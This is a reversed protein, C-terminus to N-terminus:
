GITEEDGEGGPHGGGGRPLLPFGGRHRWYPRHTRRRLRRNDQRSQREWETWCKEEAAHEPEREGGGDRESIQPCVVYNLM